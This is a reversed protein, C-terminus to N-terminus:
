CAICYINTYAFHFLKVIQIYIPKKTFLIIITFLNELFKIIKIVIYYTILM